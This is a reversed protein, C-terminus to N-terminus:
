KQANCEGSAGLQWTVYEVMLSNVEVTTGDIFYVRYWPYYGNLGAQDFTTIKTVGLKDGVQWRHGDRGPTEVTTIEMEETVKESSM